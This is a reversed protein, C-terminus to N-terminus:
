MFAHVGPSLSQPPHRLTQKNCGPLHAVGAGLEVARAWGGGDRSTLQRCGHSDTV